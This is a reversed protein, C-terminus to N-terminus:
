KSMALTGAGKRIVQSYVVEKDKVVEFTYSGDPLQAVDYTIKSDNAKRVNKM